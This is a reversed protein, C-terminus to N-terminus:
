RARKRLVDKARNREERQIRDIRKQQKEKDLKGFKGSDIDAKIRDYIKPGSMRLFEYYQDDDMVVKNLHNGRGPPRIRLGNDVVFEVVPDKVKTSKFRSFMRDFTDGRLTKIPRGFVNLRPRGQRRAIPLQDLIISRIDRTDYLTSDFIQDVQRFMASAPIAASGTRALLRTVQEGRDGAKGSIIEGLKAASTLFTMDFAAVGTETLVAAVRDLAGEKDRDAFRLTDLYNGALGFAL